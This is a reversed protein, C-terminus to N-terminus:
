TILTKIIIILLLLLIILIMLIIIIIVALKSGSPTSTIVFYTHKLLSDRNENPTNSNLKAVASFVQFATLAATIAELVLPCLRKTDQGWCSQTIVNYM